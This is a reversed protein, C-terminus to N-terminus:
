QKDSKGEKRDGDDFSLSHKHKSEENSGRDTSLVDKCEGGLGYIEKRVIDILESSARKVDDNVVAYDYLERRNMELSANKLRLELEEPSETGRGKLRLSLEEQSPPLIFILIAEPFRRKIQLAGQVDIELVVSKGEKLREEVFAKPTGYLNGHVEAWEILEGNDRMREFEAPSIFFYDVGNIEGIRPKRTTVSVSYVLEPLAKFLERRLTGKGAGSPGSIVFLKGRRQNM